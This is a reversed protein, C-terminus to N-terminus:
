WVRLTNSPSREALLTPIVKNKLLEWEAPERFFSTVGILLEKFLLELEQPNEQLFHVHDPVKDMQHIGMIRRYVTNKKYSSFDHGTQSGLLIMINDFSSQADNSQGQDSMDIHIRKELYAVIKSPLTESPAIVDALGEEIASRPM